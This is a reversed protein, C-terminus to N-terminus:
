RQHARLVRPYVRLGHSPKADLELIRLAPRAPAGNPLPMGALPHAHVSSRASPVTIPIDRRETRLQLRYVRTPDNSLGNSPASESSLQAQTGCQAHPGPRSGEPEKAFAQKAGLPVELPRRVGVLSSDLARGPVCMPGPAPAREARRVCVTSMSENVKVCWVRWVSQESCVSVM